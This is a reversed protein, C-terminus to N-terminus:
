KVRVNEWIREDPVLWIWVRNDEKMPGEGEQRVNKEGLDVLM